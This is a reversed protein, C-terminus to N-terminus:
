GGLVLGGIRRRHTPSPHNIAAALLVPISFIGQAVRRFVVIVQGRELDTGVEIALDVCIAAMILRTNGQRRAGEIRADAMVVAQRGTLVGQTRIPHAGIPGM